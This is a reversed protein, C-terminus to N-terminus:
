LKRKVFKELRHHLPVLIFAIALLIIYMLIANHNTIKEVSPHILLSIFEFLMLLSSIGLLIIIKNNKKKKKSLFFVFAAFLPIFVAILGLQINRNRYEMDKKQQVKLEEQRYIEAIRLGEVKRLKELNYLSDKFGIIVDQYWILSDNNKKYKFYEKRLLASQLSKQLDNAKLAYDLAYTAFFNTSDYNGLEIYNTALGLYIESNINNIEANDRNKLYPMGIAAKYYANAIMINNLRSHINGLNCMSYVLWREDHNNTALEFAKNQYKLASDLQKDKLYADALNSYAGAFNTFRSNEKFKAALSHYSISEKYNELRNYISGITSYIIFLYPDRSKEAIKLAEFIIELALLNNGSESMIVGMRVLTFEKGFEWNIRESIEYGMKAFYLASDNKNIEQYIGSLKHAAKVTNSDQKFQHIIYFLSDSNIKQGFSLNSFTFSVLILFAKM